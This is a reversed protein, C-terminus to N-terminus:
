KRKKYNKKKANKRKKVTTAVEKTKTKKSVFYVKLKNFDLLLPLFAPALYYVFSLPFSYRIFSRHVAAIVLAALVPMILVTFVFFVDKDKLRTQILRVFSILLIIFYLYVWFMQQFVNRHVVSLWQNFQHLTGTQIINLKEDLEDPLYSKVPVGVFSGTKNAIHSFYQRIRSSYNTEYDKWFPYTFRYDYDHSQFYHVTWTYVWKFYGIPNNMISKKFIKTKDINITTDNKLLISLPKAIKGRHSWYFFKLQQVDWGDIVSKYEPALERWGQEIAENVKKPFSEDTTLCAYAPEIMSLNAKGVPDTYTFKKTAFYNFTSQLLYFGVVPVFVLLKTKIQYKEIFLYLMLFALVVFLFMGAGRTFIIYMLILSSLMWHIANRSNIAFILIGIFLVLLNVYLSETLIATESHLIPMMTFFVSLSITAVITLNRYWKNIAYLLFVTTIYSFLTQWFVISKLSQFLVYTISIFFPYGTGGFNSKKGEGILGKMIRIYGHADDSIYPIYIDIFFGIRTIIFLVTFVSLSILLRKDKFM